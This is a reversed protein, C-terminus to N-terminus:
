LNGDLELFALGTPVKPYFFTSKQPMVEGASAVARVDAAPTSNLLFALQAGDQRAAVQEIAKGADQVYRINTKAAQAERSIGLVQELIVDHLLIVDLARLAPAREGPLAGLDIDQRLSALFSTGGQTRIAFTPTKAEALRELLSEAEGPEEGRTAPVFHVEEVDFYEALKSCFSAEDFAPLSHVIRHTPLVLLEPDNEDVLFFLGHRSAAAEGEARETAYRLATEYRHHGDAILLQASELSATVQALVAADTVRCFRHAIGDPTEFEALLEEAAALQALEQQGRFLLFGPSLATRTAELLKRRDEKPGSLTREHPLIVRQDYPELRVAAFFGRRARRKGDVPSAFRQEYTFFAPREDRVLIGEATWTALLRAANAYKADGEGEPLDLAVVNHPDRAALTQRLAADIVDYPPAIQAGLNQASSTAFRLPRFPLVAAM